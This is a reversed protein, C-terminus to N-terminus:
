VWIELPANCLLLVHSDTIQNAMAALQTKNLTAFLGMNQQTFFFWHISFIACAMWM